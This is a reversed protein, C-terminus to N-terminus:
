QRKTVMIADMVGFFLKNEGKGRGLVRELRSLVSLCQGAFYTAVFNAYFIGQCYFNSQWNVM